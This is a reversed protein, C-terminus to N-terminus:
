LREKKRQSLIRELWSSISENPDFPDDIVIVNGHFVILGNANGQGVPPPPPPITPRANVGGKSVTGEHVVSM